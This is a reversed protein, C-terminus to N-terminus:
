SNFLRSSLFIFFEKAVKVTEINLAKNDEGRMCCLILGSPIPSSKLGDIAAEVVEKQTLGKNIHLQPAFRIETYM